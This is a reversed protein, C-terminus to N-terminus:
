YMKQDPAVPLTPGKRMWLLSVRTGADPQSDIELRAGVSAAREKMIELGLHDGPIALPDFGRGDDKIDMRIEKPLCTVRLIVQGAESHKAINNLCEQTIRYFVIKVEAPLHTVAELGELQLDIPIRSRGNFAEAQHRFLEGFEAEVLASPRLELLLTRMEALASRTLQRIEELRRRGEEPNREWLRPLVEAILATSFLTQSVADHLDRALRNREAMAAATEAQTKLRATQITLGAQGAFTQALSIEEQSFPHPKPYYLVMAGVVKDIAVLPVALEAAVVEMLEKLLSENEARVYLPERQVDETTLPTEVLNDGIKVIAVPRNELVARGATGEGTTLEAVQLASPLEGRTAHVRLTRQDESLLYLVVINTDLLRDAQQVITDLVQDIPQNSNVCALIDHLGEAVRRRREIEATREEVQWALERRQREFSQQRLWYGGAVMSVLSVIGLGRFWFTGWFPPRISIILSTPTESWVGESNSGKVEFVYDGPHLNAYSALRHEDTPIWNEDLGVLRYTYRNKDPAVYDLAAFEFGIFDDQYSLHISEGSTLASKVTENYVKFATIVVVPPNQSSRIYRPFFANFGNPGGFFLEGSRSRFAAPNFASGQLGDDASYSNIGANRPDFHALGRSTSVWLTGAEDELVGYVRNSPMGIDMGYREFQGSQLDLRNLGGGLTGAWLSGASDVLLAAIGNHSLSHPDSPDHRFHTFTGNVPDFHNIGGSETGLWLGGDAAPEICLIVNDSLSRQDNPDHQYRTVQGSLPDLRALGTGYTGAWLSGAADQYIAMVQGGPLRQNDQLDAEYRTFQGSARDLRNLAGDDTGAWIEGQAGELICRVRDNRISAQDQSDQQYHTFRGTSRDLMNLGGGLTGVWLKGDRSEHLAWVNNNSLGRPDSPDRRYRGFAEANPNLKNLGGGYTGIWIVGSRDEFISRVSPNSLSTPDDDRTTYHIFNTPSEPRAKNIGGDETGVWIQGAQDIYITNIEASSLSGANDPDVPIHLFTDSGRELLDVGSGTGIWLNGAQDGAVSYVYDDSLSSPDDPDHLYSRFTGLRPSFANLGIQTGIWLTGQQDEYICRVINSSLSSPDDPDHSYNQFKGTVPDLHALGGGHTGVWHVGRSDQYIARVRNHSLSNPDDPNNQYRTFGGSAPDYQHLGGHFTGIWLIGERDVHLATVFGDALSNEDNPQPTFTTFSYGDYRNLGDRTGFWLYGQSDQAIAIVANESLGQDVGLHEFPVSTARLDSAWAPLVRTLALGLAFFIVLMLRHLFRRLKEEISLEM